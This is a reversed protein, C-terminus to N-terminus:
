PEALIKARQEHYQEPTLQDAMYQQLLQQLRQQKTASVAPPPPPLPALTGSNRYAAPTPPPPPAPAPKPQTNELAQQLAEHSTNGPATVVTSYTPEGHKTATTVNQQAGSGSMKQRLAEQLRATTEPNTDEQVAATTVQRPPAQVATAPAAPRSENMKQHLADELASTNQTPATQPTATVVVPAPTAAPMVRVAPPQSPAAAQQAQLSNMKQHLADELASPQQVPPQSSPVAPAAQMPASSQQAKLENMKQQLAEQLRSDNGDQSVSALPLLGIAAVWALPLVRRSIQM